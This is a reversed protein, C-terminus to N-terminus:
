QTVPQQYQYNFQKLIKGDKDKLLKLRGFSDYEYFSTKGAPDTESTIGILPSYTYSTVLAAPLGIRVKNVEDRVAQESAALDLVGQNIYQKATNYDAGVIRAVPYQSNYGWLFTETPGSNISRDLINGKGDYTNFVAKKFYRSDSLMTMTNFPAPFIGTAANSFKFNKLLIPAPVDLLRVEDPLTVNTIKYTYISGGTISTDGNSGIQYSITEIPSSVVHRSLMSDIFPTGTAYNSAYSNLSLLRQGNSRSVENGIVNMPNLRGGAYTYKTSVGLTDAGSYDTKIEETLTVFSSFTNYYRYPFDVVMGQAVPIVPYIKMGPLMDRQTRAYRYETKSLAVGSANYTISKNLKGALINHETPLYPFTVPLDEENKYYYEIKGNEGNEGLLETVKDYGVIGANSSLGQVAISSSTRTYYTHKWQCYGPGALNYYTLYDYTPRSLLLGSTTTDNIAYQFKRKLVQVGNDYNTISKIRLGGGFRKKVPVKARWNATIQTTFGEDSVVDITYHGPVLMTSYTQPHSYNGPMDNNEEWFNYLLNGNKYVHAYDRIYSTPQSSENKFRTTFTAPVTDYVDFSNTLHATRDQGRAYAEVSLPVWDFTDDGYLNRYDNIEYDLVTKGGTPYIISSLMGSKLKEPDTESKRNAGDFFINKDLGEEFYIMKEPILRLNATKGNYYGWHDIAKSYKYPIGDPTYYDFKFPAKAAGDGGREILSDLRLRRRYISDNGASGLVSSQFYSYFFTYRRVQKGNIDKITIESLKSPKVAGTYLLDNRETAAFEISGQSFNIKSLTVDSIEQISAGYSKVIPSPTSTPGANCNGPDGDNYVSRLKDSQTESKGILSLSQSKLEYIFTLKEASPAVISDLYWSTAVRPKNPIDFYGLPAYDSLETDPSSVSYDTCMERTGFYYKYGSEDTVIWRGPVRIYEIKLNNWEDNYVVTGDVQKGISFKGSYKGFNYNFIDPDTDIGGNKVENFYEQQPLPMEIIDKSGLDHKDPLTATYYGTYGDTVFDDLGVINRTIVGGAALSWGLGTWGANEGVRVGTSHYSLTIPLSHHNTKIEYLPISFNTTGTYLNVPIDGYTGLAAATPSPPIVKSAEYKQGYVQISFAVLLLTSQILQALSRKM